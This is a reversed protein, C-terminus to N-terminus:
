VLRPRTMFWLANSLALAAEDLASDAVPIDGPTNKMDEASKIILRIASPDDPSSRGNHWERGMKQLVEPVDGVDPVDDFWELLNRRAMELLRAAGQPSTPPTRVLRSAAREAAACHQDYADGTPVMHAQARDARKFERALKVCPDM